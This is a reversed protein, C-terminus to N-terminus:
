KGKCIMIKDAGLGTLASVADSLQLRVQPDDGGSAVVLAGRYEPGMEQLVAAEQGATGKSLVLTSVERSTRGNDESAKGDQALVQRPSERVTLVVTVQGAGEVRSLARELRQEMQATQFIDEKEEEQVPAEGKGAPWILLLVGVAATALVYRYKKLWEWGKGKWKIERM